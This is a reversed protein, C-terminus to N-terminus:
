HKRQSDNTEPKDKGENEQSKSRIICADSSDLLSWDDQNKSPVHPDRM